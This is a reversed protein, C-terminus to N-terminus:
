YLKYNKFRLSNNWFFMFAKALRGNERRILHWTVFRIIYCFFKSFLSNLEMPSNMSQFNCVSCDLIQGYFSYPSLSGERVTIKASAIHVVMRGSNLTGVSKYKKNACSWEVLIYPGRGNLREKTCSWEVLFWPESQNTEKIHVRGNSWFIHDEKM